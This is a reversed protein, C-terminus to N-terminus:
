VQKKHQMWAVWGETSEPRGDESEDRALLEECEAIVHQAVRVAGDLYAVTEQRRQLAICLQLPQAISDLLKWLFYGEEPLSRFCKLLDVAKKTTTLASIAAPILAFAM